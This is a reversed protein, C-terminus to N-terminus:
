ASRSGFRLGKVERRPPKGPPTAPWASKAPRWSSRPGATTWTRASARAGARSPSATRGACARRSSVSRREELDHKRTARRINTSVAETPEKAPGSTQKM